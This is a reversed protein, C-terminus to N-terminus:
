VGRIRLATRRCPGADKPKRGLVPSALRAVGSAFREADKVRLEGFILKHLLTERVAILSRTQAAALAIRENLAYLPPSLRQQM